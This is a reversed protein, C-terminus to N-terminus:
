IAKSSIRPMLGALRWPHTEGFPGASNSFGYAPQKRRFKGRRRPAFWIGFRFGKGKPKVM